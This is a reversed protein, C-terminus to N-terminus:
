VVDDDDYGELDEVITFGHEAFEEEEETEAPRYAKLGTFSDRQCNTCFFGNTTHRGCKCKVLTM